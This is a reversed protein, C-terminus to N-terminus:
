NKNFDSLTSPKFCNVYLKKYNKTHTCNYNYELMSIKKKLNDNNFLITETLMM